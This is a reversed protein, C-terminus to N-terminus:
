GSAGGILNSHDERPMELPGNSHERMNSRFGIKVGLEELIKLTDNSYSNCPHAVAEVPEHLLGELHAKNRTYEERQQDPPLYELKTPHTYSHLGIIHGDAHLDQLCTDDMWLLSMLSREDIGVSSIMADMIENYNVDGLVEDRVFRFKRDSTSYYPHATLYEDAVFGKLKLEIKSLHGLDSAKEYFADYFDDIADFHTMRFHRYIELQAPVGHFVSSYVFWFATIGFEKLVPRAIDYQARLADDFTICLDQPLLTGDISRDVWDRPSLFREPGQDEILRRLQDASISGQSPAHCDDDHFHHFM